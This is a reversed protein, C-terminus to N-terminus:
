IQKGMENEQTLLKFDTIVVDVQKLRTGTENSYESIVLRGEVFVHDGKKLCAVIKAAHQEWGLISFWSTSNVRAGSKDEREETVGLAFQAFKKSKKITILKPDNGVTGILM